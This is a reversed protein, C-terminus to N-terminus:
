IEEKGKERNPCGICELFKGHTGRYRGCLPNDDVYQYAGSKQQEGSEDSPDRNM